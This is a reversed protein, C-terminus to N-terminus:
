RRTPMADDRMRIAIETVTRWRRTGLDHGATWLAPVGEAARDEGRTTAHLCRLLTPVRLAPVRNGEIRETQGRRQERDITQKTSTRVAEDTTKTAGGSIGDRVARDGSDVGGRRFRGSLGVLPQADLSNFEQGLGDDSSKRTYIACRIQPANPTKRSM